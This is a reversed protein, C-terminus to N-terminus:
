LKFEETVDKIVEYKWTRLKAHDYGHPIAVVHAPDVKTLVVRDTQPVDSIAYYKIYSKAAVHYGNSCENERDPDVEFPKMEPKQGVANNVTNTYIDLYDKTVRKYALFYGDDTIKIDNHKLFDFLEYVAERRPNNVLRKLFEVLSSIDEGDKWMKIIRKTMNTDLVVNDYTLVNGTIKISGNVYTEIARRISILGVAKEVDNENILVDLAEKFKAHNRDANYAQGDVYCNIFDYGATWSMEKPKQVVEPEVPSSVKAKTNVPSQIGAHRRVIDGVTSRPIGTQRAIQNQSIGTAKLRIVLEDRTEVKKTPHKYETIIEAIKIISANRFNFENLIDTYLEDSIDYDEEDEYWLILEVLDLECFEYRSLPTHVDPKYGYLYLIGNTLILSQNVVEQERDKM